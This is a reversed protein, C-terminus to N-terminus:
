KVEKVLRSVIENYFIDESTFSYPQANCFIIVASKKKRNVWVYNTVGMDNGSISFTQKGKEKHWATAQNPALLPYQATFLSDISSPQFVSNENNFLMNLMKAYDSTTTRLQGNPYDPYGYHPLPTVTLSGSELSVDHPSAVHTHPIEQWFYYTENMNLPGFIEDKVYESFPKGSVQQVILALLAYNLNSYAYDEGPAFMEFNDNANYYRGNLQFYGKLFEDLMHPSDGGAPLTYLADLVNWNDKISSTHGLLMRISIAKDPFGPNFLHFPLHTAANDDLHIKGQEQLKLISLATFPQACTATMFLSQANVPNQTADNIVGYNGILAIEGDKICTVQLGVLNAEELKQQIFADLKAHQGTLAFCQLVLLLAIWKGPPRLM